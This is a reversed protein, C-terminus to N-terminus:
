NFQNQNASRWNYPGLLEKLRESQLKGDKHELKLETLFASFREYCTSMSADLPKLESILRPYFMYIHM